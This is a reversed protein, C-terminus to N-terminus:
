RCSLRAGRGSRGTASPADPGPRWPGAAPSAPAPAAPWGCAPWPRAARRAPRASVPTLEVAGCRAASGHGICGGGFGPEDVQDAGLTAREVAADAVVRLPTELLVAAALARAEEVGTRGALQHIDLGAGVLALRQAPLDGDLAQLLRGLLRQYHDRRPLGRGR